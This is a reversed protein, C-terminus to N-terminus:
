IGSLPIGLTLWVNWAEAHNRAESEYDTRAALFECRRRRGARSSPLLAAAAMTRAALCKTASGPSALRGRRASHGTM